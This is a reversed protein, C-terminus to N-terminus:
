KQVIFQKTVMKNNAEVKLIYNGNALHSIQIQKNAMGGNLDEKDTWMTRGSIDIISYHLTTPNPIAMAVNLYDFAPNPYVDYVQISKIYMSLDSQELSTPNSPETEQSINEDGPFYLTYTFYVLMMEDTTSEGASVNQPPSNPNDHNASTNDYFAEAKVVTGGPVKLLNKFAYFGQWHFDWDDIKIVPITDGTPTEGWVKIKKGILHMHPAVNLVSVNYQSPITYQAYFWKTTNAPIFLPGNDLFFHNIAPDILVERVLSASHFKIRIKTSDVTNFTGGPYHIQLIINTNADLKPGMQDPFRFATGGPVWGSILKSANSGTGGFSTYGPGAQAADLNAPTNTPDQYVLVHHVVSRDGPIVEIDKIYRATANNVPIVFCRYLDTATNVTYHPIGLELDYDSLEYAGFTPLAPANAMNGQPTGGDVWEQITQIQEPTLLREHAFQSYNEDPPWPPMRKTMVAVKINSSFDVANQYTEFPMPGIGNSNHCKTCNTYIISAVDDAWTPTQALSYFSTFLYVILAISLSKYM